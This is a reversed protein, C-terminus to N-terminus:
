KERNSLKKRQCHVSGNSALTQSYNFNLHGPFKEAGGFTFQM